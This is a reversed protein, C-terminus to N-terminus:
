PWALWGVFSLCQFWRERRRFGAADLRAEHADTGDPVLVRELAARKRSIEMESYGNARKFDAHLENMLTSLVPDPWAVKEVLVLVGGDALGARIRRLQELRQSPPLFQLTLSLLVVSAGQIEVDALDACRPELRGAAVADPLRRRLEDLMAPSADVAIIRLGPDPVRALISASAAGLSCGLDFVLGGYSIHRAAVLGILRILEQYGPVSRDLMDAFVRAVREDFVFDSAPADAGAYLRDRRQDGIPQSPPQTSPQSPSQTSPDSM